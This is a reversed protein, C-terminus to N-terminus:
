KFFPIVYQHVQNIQEDNQSNKRDFNEEMEQLYLSIGPKLYAKGDEIFSEM